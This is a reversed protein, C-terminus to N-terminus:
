SADEPDAAAGGVTEIAWNMIGHINRVLGERGSQDMLDLWESPIVRIFSDLHDAKDRLSRIYEHDIKFNVFCM